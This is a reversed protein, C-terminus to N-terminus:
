TNTEPDLWIVFGDQGNVTYQRRRLTRQHKSKFRSYLVNIRNNDAGPIFATRGALLEENLEQDEDTRFSDDVIQYRM